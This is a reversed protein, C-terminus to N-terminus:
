KRKGGAEPIKDNELYDTMVYGNRYLSIRIMGEQDTRYIKCGAEGLRELTEQAPHGYSNDEGVSILAAEAKVAKLFDRSSSTASGHHAVKLVDIDSLLRKGILESETKSSIDGTFLM